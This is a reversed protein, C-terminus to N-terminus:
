LRYLPRANEGPIKRRAESSLTQMKAEVSQLPNPYLCTPNPSTPRSSSATRSSIRCNTGTTRSGSRRTCTPGSISPPWNASSPSSGLGDESMQYDLAELIFPIWGVGSEVSVVKLNPHRDFVDSLTMNTVVRVDADIALMDKLM